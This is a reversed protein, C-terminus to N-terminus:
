SDPVDQDGPGYGSASIGSGASIGDTGGALLAGGRKGPPGKFYLLPTHYGEAKGGEDLMTKIESAEATTECVRIIEFQTRNLVAVMIVIGVIVTAAAMIMIIHQKKTFKNWWEIIRNLLKKLREEM